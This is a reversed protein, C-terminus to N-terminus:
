PLVCTIQVIENSSATPTLSYTFTVGTATLSSSTFTGTANTGGVQTATCSYPAIAYATPFTYNITPSASQGTGSNTITGQVPANAGSLATWAATTGWGASLVLKAATILTNPALGSGFFAGNITYPVVSTNQIVGTNTAVGGSDVTLGVGSNSSFALVTHGSLTAAGGSKVHICIDNSAAAAQCNLSHISANGSIQLGDASNTFTNNIYDNTSNFWLNAAESVMPSVCQGYSTGFSVTPGLNTGGMQACTGASWFINSGGDIFVSISAILPSCLATNYSVGVLEIHYLHVPANNSGQAHIGQCIGWGFIGFNEATSDAALSEVASNAGGQGTPTAIGGGDFSFDILHLNNNASAASPIQFGCINNPCTSVNIDPAMVITSATLGYGRVTIGVQSGDGVNSASCGAPFELAANSTVLSYGAPVILTGCTGPAGAAAVANTWGTTDDAPFLYLTCKNTTGGSTNCAASSTNTFTLQTSSNVSAVTGRAIIIADSVNKSSCNWTSVWGIWSTTIGLTTLDPDHQNADNGITVVGTSSASVNADCFKFGGAKVGYNSAYFISNGNTSPIGPSNAALSCNAGTLGTGNYSVCQGSTPATSTTSLTTSGFTLGSSTGSGSANGAGLNVWNSGSSPCSYLNHGTTDLYQQGGNYCPNSPAGAGTIQPAVQAHASVCAGMAILAIALFRLIKM